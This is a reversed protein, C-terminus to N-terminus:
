WSNGMGEERDEIVQKLKEIAQQAREEDLRNLNLLMKTKEQRSIVPKNLLHLIKEKQKATAYKVVGPTMSETVDQTVIGDLRIRLLNIEPETLLGHKKLTQYSIECADKDKRTMTDKFYIFGTDMRAEFTGGM